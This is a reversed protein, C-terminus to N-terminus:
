IVDETAGGDFKAFVLDEGDDGEPGYVEVPLGDRRGEGGFM